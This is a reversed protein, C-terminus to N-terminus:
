GGLPPSILRQSRSPPTIWSYWRAAAHVPMKFGRVWATAKRASVRDRPEERLRASMLINYDTGSAVVFLFLVLPLTFILVAAGLTAAFELGVALLLYVPALSRLGLLV